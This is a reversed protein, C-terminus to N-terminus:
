MYEDNNDAQLSGSRIRTPGGLDFDVYGIQRDFVAATSANWDGGEPAARGDTILAVAPIGSGKVAVRGALLNPPESRCSALSVLAAVFAAVILARTGTM